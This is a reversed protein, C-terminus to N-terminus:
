RHALPVLDEALAVYCDDCTTFNERLEWVRAAYPWVVCYEVDSRVPTDVWRPRLYRRGVAVRFRRGVDSGILMEILVSADVVKM